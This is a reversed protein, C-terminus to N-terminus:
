RDLVDAVLVSDWSSAKYFNLASLPKRCESTVVEEEEGSEENTQTVSTYELNCWQEWDEHGVILQEAKNMMELGATSYV